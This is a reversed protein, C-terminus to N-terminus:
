KAVVTSPPGCWVLEQGERKVLGSRVILNIASNYAEVNEFHTMVRAYFHGDPIRGLGALAETLAALAMLYDAPDTKPNLTKM